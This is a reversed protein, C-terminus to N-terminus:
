AAIRTVTKGCYRFQEMDLKYPFDCLFRVFVQEQSFSPCSGSENPLNWCSTISEGYSYGYLKPYNSTVRIAGSCQRFSGSRFDVDVRIPLSYDYAEAMGRDPNKIGVYTISRSIALRSDAIALDVYTGDYNIGTTEIRITEVNQRGRECTNYMAPNDSRALSQLNSYARPSYIDTDRFLKPFSSQMKKGPPRYHIIEVPIYAWQRIDSTGDCYFNNQIGRPRPNSCSSSQGQSRGFVDQRTKSVCRPQGTKLSCYLYPSNCSQDWFSCTPSAEYLYVSRTYYDSRGHINLLNEGFGMKAYPAQGQEEGYNEPWDTETDIGQRKAGQQFLEFVYDTMSHHLFFLPDTSSANIDNLNGGVWRHIGGHIADFDFETQISPQSIDSLRCKSLVRNLATQNFLEGNDGINRILPGTVTKWNRFPGSTVEGNGNGLFEDSFIISETPDELAQDLRSDWYPVTVSPDIQRLANEFIDHCENSCGLFPTIILNFIVFPADYGCVCVM